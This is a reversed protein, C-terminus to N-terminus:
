ETGSIISLSKQAQGACSHLNYVSWSSPSDNEDIDIQVAGGPPTCHVVQLCTHPPEPATLPNQESLLSSEAAVVDEVRCEKKYNNKSTSEVSEFNQTFPRVVSCRLIHHSKRLM